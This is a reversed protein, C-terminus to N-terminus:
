LFVKRKTMRGCARMATGQCIRGFVMVQNKKDVLQGKYLGNSFAHEPLNKSEMGLKIWAKGRALKERMFEENAQREAADPFLKRVRSIEDVEEWVRNPHVKSAPLIHIRAGRGAMAHFDRTHYCAM